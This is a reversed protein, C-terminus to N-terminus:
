GNRERQAKTHYISVCLATSGTWRLWVNSVFYWLGAWGWKLEQHILADTVVCRMLLVVTTRYTLDHYENQHLFLISCVIVDSKYWLARHVCCGILLSKDCPICSCYRGFLCFGECSLMLSFLLMTPVFSWTCLVPFCFTTECCMVPWMAVNLGSDWNNMDHRSGRVFTTNIGLAHFVIDYTPRFTCWVSRATSTM